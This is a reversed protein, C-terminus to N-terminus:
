RSTGISMLRLPECRHPLEVAQPSLSSLLRGRASGSLGLRDGSLEFRFCWCFMSDFKNRLASFSGIDKTLDLECSKILGTEVVVLEGFLLATLVLRGGAILQLLM